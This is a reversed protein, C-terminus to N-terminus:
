YKKGRDDMEWYLSIRKTNTNSRNKIEILRKLYSLQRVIGVGIVFLLVTKYETFDLEKSYPGEIIAILNTKKIRKDKVYHRLSETFGRRLKVLLVM